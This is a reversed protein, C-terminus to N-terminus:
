RGLNRNVNKGNLNKYHENIVDNHMNTLPEHFTRVQTVFNGDNTRDTIMERVTDAKAVQQFTIDQIYDLVHAFNLTDIVRKDQEYFRTEIQHSADGIKIQSVQVQNVENKNLAATIVGGLSLGLLGVLGMVLFTISFVM